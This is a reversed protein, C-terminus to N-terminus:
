RLPFLFLFIIILISGVVPFFYGGDQQWPYFDFLISVSDHTPQEHNIVEM